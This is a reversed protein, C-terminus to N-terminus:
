LMSSRDVLGNREISVIMSQFNFIMLSIAAVNSNKEEQANRWGLTKCVMMAEGAQEM